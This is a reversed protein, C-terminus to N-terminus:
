RSDPRVDVGAPQSSPLAAVRKTSEGRGGSRRLLLAPTAALALAGLGYRLLSRRSLAADHAELWEISELRM